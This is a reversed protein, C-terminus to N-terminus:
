AARSLRIDIDRTIYTWEESARLDAVLENFLGEDEPAFEFWTLFDFPEGLDRCHYLKRAVQPLYGIGITHHRSQEEFIARREDQALDWWAGSKTIPILAACRAAPRGLGEQVARLDSVERRTAYRVNSAFGRLVATAGPAPADGISLGGEIGELPEGAFVTKGTVRWPGAPGFSFCSTPM